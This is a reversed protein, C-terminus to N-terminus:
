VMPLKMYHHHFQNDLQVCVFNLTIFLFARNQALIYSVFNTLLLQIIVQCIPCEIMEKANLENGKYEM